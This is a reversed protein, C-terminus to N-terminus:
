NQISQYDLVMDRRGGAMVTLSYYGTSYGVVWGLTGVKDVRRFDENKEYKDSCSTLLAHTM